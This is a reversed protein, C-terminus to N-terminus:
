REIMTVVFFSGGRAAIAALSSLRSDAGTTGGVNRASAIISHAREFRNVDAIRLLSSIGADPIIGISPLECATRRSTQENQRQLSAQLRIAGREAYVHLIVKEWRQIM